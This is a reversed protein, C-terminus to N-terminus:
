STSLREMEALWERAQTEEVVARGYWVAEFGGRRAKFWSVMEPQALARRRVEREYDLNTKSKALSVFGQSALRALTALYLARWALRWEGRDLQERALALWGGVPLQAAQTAEDQLDPVAPITLTRALLSPNRFLRKRKWALVGVAILLSAVLVVFVWMLLELADMEAGAVADVQKPKKDPWLDRFWKRLDNWVERVWAFFEHVTKVVARVMRKFVGAEAGADAQTQPLPRMSWEFDGGALVRNIARDLEAPEVTQLKPREPVAAALPTVVGATALLGFVLLPIVKQLSSETRVPHSLALSSASTKGGDRSLGVLSRSARERKAATLEVRLDEGNRRARGYFVRLTFFAKILPDVLMWAIMATSALFTTNAIWWGSFGFLNEVGLLRNALWPVAWFAVGVNLWVAAMATTLLLQGLHNQGPWLAAQLRAEAALTDSEGIVTASQFYAFAWGFPVGLLLAIPLVILGSPQIQLQAFALRCFRTLSREPALDGMRQAYLHACFDAHSAKMVAFLGVLGLASWGVAMHSPHFWTTRAWFFLLGLAFPATGAFYICFTGPATQRLLHVGEEILEIATPGDSRRNARWKM